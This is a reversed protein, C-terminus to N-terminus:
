KKRIANAILGSLDVESVPSNISNTSVVADAAAKLVMLESMFIAFPAMGILRPAVEAAGDLFVPGKQRGVDADAFDEDADPGRSHVGGVRHV